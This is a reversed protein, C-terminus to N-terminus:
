LAWFTGGSPKSERAGPSGAAYTLAPLSEPPAHPAPSSTLLIAFVDDSLRNSVEPCHDLRNIEIRLVRGAGPSSTVTTHFGRSGFAMLRPTEPHDLISELLAPSMVIIQSAM